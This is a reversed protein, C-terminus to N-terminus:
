HMLVYAGPADRLIRYGKGSAGTAPPESKGDSQQTLWANWEPWWSGEQSPTRECWEEPSVFKDMSNLTGVQYSRRPHGPESVIGANHGGSTLLFTVDTDTLLKIKYVSRWPAVHDRQTGVAFIPIRIDTLAVPRGGVRFHGEALDNNLFLERLYESHMKFPMRTADANWAMMDNPVTREGLLYNEIMSSWILDRSRLLQFTGTMKQRDLYGKEWMTDELWALQSEDIFMLLEGAEEFDIQAAFLTVSKLRDDGDRAMAAAAISLLTGGLCYGVAHIKQGPVIANIADLADMIGYERYDRNGLDRDEPGPNKWSIMFVTHGQEVLYKVLSNEPSLDLIYYKMIWAPVILLPEAYVDATVPAYQILEILRNQYVVKGQTVAINDGVGFAEMGAAPQKTIFRQWDDLFNQVGRFFNLGGQEASARLIRPNTLPFNLPSWMDLVQRAIFPRIAAHHQTMGRVHTAEQWWRETLLFAQQYLNFPWEQWGQDVFRHDQPLPEACCEMPEQGQAQRLMYDSLRTIKDGASVALEAQKGPALLLHTLWDAYALGLAAPSLGYVQGLTAHLLRDLLPVDEDAVVKLPPLKRHLGCFTDDTATPETPASAPLSHSKTKAKTPM